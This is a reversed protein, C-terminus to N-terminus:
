RSPCRMLAGNAGLCPEDQGPERADDRMSAFGLREEIKMCYHGYAVAVTIGTAFIAAVGLRDTWALEEM